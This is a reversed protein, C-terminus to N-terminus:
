GEIFPLHKKCASRCSMCGQLEPQQCSARYLDVDPRYLCGLLHTHISKNAVFSQYPPLTNKRVAAHVQAWDWNAVDLHGEPSHDTHFRFYHKSSPMTLNRLRALQPLEDLAGPLAEVPVYLVKPAHPGCTRERLQQLLFHDWQPLLKGSSKGRLTDLKQVWEGFSMAKIPSRRSWIWARESMAYLYSSVARDLPSRIFHVCLWEDLGCRCLDDARPLHQPQKEFVQQRYAHIWPSYKQAAASLNLYGLMLQTTVTAGAKPTSLLVMKSPRDVLRFQQPPLPLPQRCAAIAVCVYSIYM